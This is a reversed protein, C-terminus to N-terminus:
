ELRILVSKLKALKPDDYIINVFELLKALREPTTHDEKFVLGKLALYEKVFQEYEKVSQEDNPPDKRIAEM